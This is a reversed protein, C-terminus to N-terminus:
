NTYISRPWIIKWHVKGNINQYFPLEIELIGNENVGMSAFLSAPQDGLTSDAIIDISIAKNPDFQDIGQITQPLYIKKNNDPVATGSAIFIPPNSKLLDLLRKDIEKEVKSNVLIKALFFLAFGIVAIVVGLITWTLNILYQNNDSVQQIRDSLDNIQQVIQSNNM